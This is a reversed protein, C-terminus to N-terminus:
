GAAGEVDRRADVERRLFERAREIRDETTGPNGLPGVHHVGDFYKRMIEQIQCEIDEREVEGFTRAKVRTVGDKEPGLVLTAIMWSTVMLDHHDVVFIQDTIDRHENSSAGNM